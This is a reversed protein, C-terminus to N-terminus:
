GLNGMWGRLKKRMRLQLTLVEKLAKDKINRLDDLRPIFNEKIFINRIEDDILDKPIKKPDDKFHPYQDKWEELFSWIDDEHQFIPLIGVSNPTTCAISAHPLSHLNGNFSIAIGKENTVRALMNKDTISDGTVVINKIPVGIRESIEVLAAEKRRGGRVSVKNMVKVYSSKKDKWFFEHLDDLIEHLNSNNKLYKKFIQDILINVYDKFNELESRLEEINLTTCYVNDIKIDLLRAINHAHQTYSTSIIFIKWKKRLYDMTINIGPLLGPNKESIQKLEDDSFYWVYFPALLRLTDGPEYDKIGMKKTESPYDILYDDYNSIMEFFKDLNKKKVKKEMIPFLAAAFDVWSIPGELDWVCVNDVM